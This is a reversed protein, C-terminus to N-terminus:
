KNFYKKLLETLELELEKVKNKELKKINTVINIKDKTINIKYDNSKVQNTSTDSNSIKPKKNIERLDNRTIESKILKLYYEYQINSDLKQLEYLAEIDKITKNEQLDSIIREDLNLAALVKSIYANPKGIAKAIADKNKFVGNILLSKLSIATEIIDLDARQLNEILANIAMKNNYNEDSHNLESIIIADVTERKLLKHAAVRRHGAILEYSNDSIKNLSVPQLLGNEKISNALDILDENKMNLRPQFPNDVIKNIDIQVLKGIENKKAHSFKVDDNENMAASDMIANINDFKTKRAM